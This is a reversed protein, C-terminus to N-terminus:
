EKGSGSLYRMGIRLLDDQSLGSAGWESVIYKSLIDVDDSGPSLDIRSEKKKPVIEIDVGIAGDKLLEERVKEAEKLSSVKVRVFDGKVSTSGKVYGDLKVFHPAEITHHDINRTETDFVVFGRNDQDGFNHAIPAGVSVVRLMETLGRRMLDRVSHDHLHGLLLMNADGALDFASVDGSIGGYAGMLEDVWQHAVVVQPRTEELFDFPYKELKERNKTYPIFGFEVGNITVRTPYNYINVGLVSLPYLANEDGIIDHNGPIAYIDLYKYDNFVSIIGNLAEVPLSGKIHFLDGLFFVPLEHDTAYQLVTEIANICHRMRQSSSIDGYGRHPHAHVDAFAVGKM